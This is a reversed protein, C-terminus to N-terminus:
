GSLPHSPITRFLNRYTRNNKLCLSTSQPKCRVLLVYAEYRHWKELSGSRSYLNLLASTGSKEPVPAKAHASHKAEVSRRSNRYAEHKEAGAGRVLPGIRLQSIGRKMGRVLGVDASMIESSRPRIRFRRVMGFSQEWRM